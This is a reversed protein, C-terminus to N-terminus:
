PRVRGHAVYMAPNATRTDSWTAWLEGMATLTLGLYDGHWSQPNRGTTFRFPADSVAENRGCPMAPDGPCRAYAVAGEGFRNEMWILHVAHTERDVVMAPFGHTACSEPEDNVKRYRWSSGNDSSTALILDWAGSADGTLYAVHIVDGDLAVPPQIYVPSDTNRSVIHLSEQTRFGDRSARMLVRNASSGLRASSGEGAGQGASIGAWAAVVRGSPGTAFQILNHAVVTTGLQGAVALVAPPSWTQAGDDSRQVLLNAANNTQALYGLYLAETNPEVGPGATLWPKDCIGGGVCTGPPDVARPTAWTMGNNSSETVRVRVNTVQGLGNRALGIFTMRLTGDRSHELVPDSSGNFDPDTVRGDALWAMGDASRSVGMFVTNNSGLAIYSNTVAGTVPNVAINGEAELFSNPNPASVAANAGQFVVRPLPPIVNTGSMGATFCAAGDRNGVPEDNVRCVRTGMVGEAAGCVYGEATRCDANSTCRQFCIPFGQLRGCVADAGCSSGGTCIRTCYGRSFGLAGSLCLQGTRCTGQMPPFPAGESECAEGIGSPMAVTGTDVPVVVDEPAGVDVAAEVAADGPPPTPTTSSSCAVVGFGLGLVAGVVGRVTV